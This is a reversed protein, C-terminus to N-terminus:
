WSKPSAVACFLAGEPLMLSVQATNPPLSSAYLWPDDLKIGLVAASIRHTPKLDAAKHLGYASAYQILIAMM